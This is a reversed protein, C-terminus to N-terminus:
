RIIQVPITQLLGEGSLTIYYTGQPLEEHKFSIQQKGTAVFGDKLVAVERGLIDTITLKIKLPKELTFHITTSATFPNPEAILATNKFSFNDTIDTPFSLVSENSMVSGCPNTVRCQYTGVAYDGVNYFRLEPITFELKKGDKFWEYTVATTDLVEVWIIVYDGAALEVKAQPHSTIVPPANVLFLQVAATATDSTSVAVKVSYKGVDGTDIGKLFLKSTTTGSISDSDILDIGDKQWKYSLNQDSNSSASVFFEVTDGKCFFKNQSNSDITVVFGSDIVAYRALSDINWYSVTGDTHATALHVSDPSVAITTVPSQLMVKKPFNYKGPMWILLNSNEHASFYYRGRMDVALATAPSTQTGLSDLINCSPLDRIYINGTGQATLLKESDNTFVSVVTRQKDLTQAQNNKYKITKSEKLDFISTTIRQTRPYRYPQTFSVASGHIYRQDPSVSTTYHEIDFFDAYYNFCFTKISKLSDPSIIGICTFSFTSPDPSAYEGSSVVIIEDNRFFAYSENLKQLPINQSYEPVQFKKHYTSDSLKLLYNL